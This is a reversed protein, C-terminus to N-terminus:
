FCQHAVVRAARRQYDNIFEHLAHRHIPQARNIKRHQRENGVVRADGGLLQAVCQAYLRGIHDAHDVGQDLAFEDGAMGMGGVATGHAQM